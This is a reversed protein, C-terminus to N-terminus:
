FYHRTSLVSLISFIDPLIRKLIRHMHCISCCSNIPMLMFLLSYLKSEFIYSSVGVFCLRVASIGVGDPGAFVLGGPRGSQAISHVEKLLSLRQETLLFKIHNSADIEDHFGKLKFSISVQPKVM